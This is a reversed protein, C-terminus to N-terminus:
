ERANGTAAERRRGRSADSPLRGPSAAGKTERRGAQLDPGVKELALPSLAQLPRNRRHNVTWPGLSSAAYFDMPYPQQWSIDRLAM